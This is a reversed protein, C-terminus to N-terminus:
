LSCKLRISQANTFHSRVENPLYLSRMGAVVACVSLPQTVLHSSIKFHQNWCSKHEYPFSRVSDCSFHFHLLPSIKTGAHRTLLFECTVIQLPHFFDDSDKAVYTKTEQDSNVCCCPEVAAWCSGLEMGLCTFSGRPLTHASGLWCVGPRDGVPSQLRWLPEPKAHWLLATYFSLRTLARSLGTSDTPFLLFASYLHLSCASPGM